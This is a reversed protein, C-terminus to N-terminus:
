FLVLKNTGSLYTKELFVNINETVKETQRDKERSIPM